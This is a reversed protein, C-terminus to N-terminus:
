TGQPSHCSHSFASSAWPLQQLLQCLQTLQEWACPWKSCQRGRRSEQFSSRVQLVALAITVISAVPAASVWRTFLHLYM